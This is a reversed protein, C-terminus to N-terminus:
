DPKIAKARGRLRNILLLMFRLVILKARSLQYISLVAARRRSMSTDTTKAPHDFFM